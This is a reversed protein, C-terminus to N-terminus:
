NITKIIKAGTWRLTAEIANYDRVHSVIEEPLPPNHSSWDGDPDTCPPNIILMGDDESTGDSHCAALYIVRCGGPNPGTDYYVIKGLTNVPTNDSYLFYGDSSLNLNEPVPGVFSNSIQQLDSCLQGSDYVCPTVVYTGNIGGKDKNNYPSKFSNSLYGMCDQSYWPAWPSSTLTSTL